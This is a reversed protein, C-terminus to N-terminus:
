PLRPLIFFLYKFMFITIDLRVVCHLLQSSPHPTSDQSVPTLSSGATGAEQIFIMQEIKLGARQLCAQSPLLFHGHVQVEQREHPLDAHFELSRDKGQDLCCTPLSGVFLLDGM